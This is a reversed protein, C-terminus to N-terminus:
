ASFDNIQSLEEGHQANFDIPTQLPSHTHCSLLLATQYQHREETRKSTVGAARRQIYICDTRRDALHYKWLATVACTCRRGVGRRRKTQERGDCLNLFTTLSKRKFTSNM